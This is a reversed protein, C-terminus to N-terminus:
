NAISHQFKANTRNVTKSIHLFGQYKTFQLKNWFYDFYMFFLYKVKTLIIVRTLQGFKINTPKATESIWRPCVFLCVFLCVFM